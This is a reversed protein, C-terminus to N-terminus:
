CVYLNEYKRHVLNEIISRIKSAEKSSLEGYYLKELIISSDYNSLFENVKIDYVIPICKVRSM